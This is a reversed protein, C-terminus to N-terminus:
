LQAQLTTRAYSLMNARAIAGNKMSGLVIYLVYADEMALLNRAIVGAPEAPTFVAAHIGADIVSRYLAVQRETFSTVVPTFDPRGRLAAIGDYMMTLEDSIRDPVGLDILTRLKDPIAPLGDIAELRHHYWQDFAREIVARFVGDLGDFHYHITAPSVGAAEAIDKVSASGLNRGHLVPVAARIIQEKKWPERPRGRGM